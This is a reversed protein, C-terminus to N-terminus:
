FEGCDIVSTIIGEKFYVGLLVYKGAVGIWRTNGLDATALVYTNDIDYLSGNDFYQYFTETEKVYVMEKPSGFTNAQAVTDLIPINDNSNLYDIIKEASWYDLNSIGSDDFKIDHDPVEITRTNGSTLKELNFKLKKTIDDKNYIEFILDSFYYPIDGLRYWITGNCYYLGADKRFVGSGYPELVIFTKGSNFVPDPLFNANLSIGSIYCSGSGSNKNLYGLIIANNELVNM